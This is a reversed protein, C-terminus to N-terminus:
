RTPSRAAGRDRVAEAGDLGLRVGGADSKHVLGEAVAKLAVPGGLEDAAAAAAEATPVVRMPSLPLGYCDLLAATRAPSLWDSGEALAESIIAAAEDPRCGEPHPYRGEPTARWVGHRAALAIASAADEPFQFGPIELGDSTLEAPAGERTM